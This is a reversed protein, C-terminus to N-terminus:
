LYRRQTAIGAVGTEPNGMTVVNSTLCTEFFVSNGRRGRLPKGAFDILRNSSFNHFLHICKLRLNIVFVRPFCFISWFFM